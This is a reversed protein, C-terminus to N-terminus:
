NPKTPNARPVHRQRGAGHEVLAPDAGYVEFLGLLTLTLEHFASRISAHATTM